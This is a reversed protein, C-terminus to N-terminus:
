KEAPHVSKIVIQWLQILFSRIFYTSLHVPKIARKIKTANTTAASLVPEQPRQIGMTVAIPVTIPAM